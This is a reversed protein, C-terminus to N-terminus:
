TTEPPEEGTLDLYEERSMEGETVMQRALAIADDLEEQLTMKGQARRVANFTEIKSKLSKTLVNLELATATGFEDQLKKFTNM